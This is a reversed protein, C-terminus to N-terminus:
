GGLCSGVGSDVVDLLPPLGSATALTEGCEDVLRWGDLDSLLRVRQWPRRGYAPELLMGRGDSGGIALWRFARTQCWHTLMRVESTERVPREKIELRSQEM